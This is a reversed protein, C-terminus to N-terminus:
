KSDRERGATRMQRSIRLCYLLPLSGFIGFASDLLRWPWPIGRAQGAIFALPIVGACIALGTNLVWDSELPHRFARLFFAACALHGFALWDTAYGFFPFGAYTEELGFLIFAVWRALGSLQQYHSPDSIGLWRALLRIELLLPFATLGSLILGALFVGLSLRYRRLLHSNM